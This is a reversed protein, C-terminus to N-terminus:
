LPVGSSCSLFYFGASEWKVWGRTKERLSVYLKASPPVHMEREFLISDYEHIYLQKICYAHHPFLDGQSYRSILPFMWAPARHSWWLSRCNLAHIYLQYKRYAEQKEEVQRVWLLDEESLSKSHGEINTVTHTNKVRYSTLREGCPRNLSGNISFSDVGASPQRSVNVREKFTQCEGDSSLIKRNPICTVSSSSQM